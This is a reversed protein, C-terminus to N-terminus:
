RKAAKLFMGFLYFLTGPDKLLRSFADDHISALIKFIESFLDM